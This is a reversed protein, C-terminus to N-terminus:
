SEVYSRLKRKLEERARALRSKVTGVRCNLLKTIEALPMGELHHLVVVARHEDSLANLAEQILSDREDREVAIEPNEAMAEIAVEGNEDFLNELSDCNLKAAKRHNKCLNAAIRFLWTSFAEANKIKAISQYAHIFTEQTLDAADAENGSMRFALNYVRKQYSLFLKEFARIDGNQTRKVLDVDLPKM